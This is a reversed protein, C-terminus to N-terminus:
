VLRGSGLLGLSISAYSLQISRRGGSGFTSPEFGEANALNRRIYQAPQERVLSLAPKSACSGDPGLGPGGLTDRAAEDLMDNARRVYRQTVRQDSHALMRQIELLSWKKGWYGCALITAATGRLDHFRIKRDIGARTLAGPTIHLVPRGDKDPRRERKEAWGFDYSKGYPKGRRNPFLWEAGEPLTQLHTRLIPLL